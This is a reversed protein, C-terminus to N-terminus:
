DSESEAESLGHVTHKPSDDAVLNTDTVSTLRSGLSRETWCARVLGSWSNALWWAHLIVKQMKAQNRLKKARPHSVALVATQKREVLRIQGTWRVARM